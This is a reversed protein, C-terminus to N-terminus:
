EAKVIYTFAVNKMRTEAATRVVRSSDFYIKRVENNWVTGGDSPGGTGGNDFFAGSLYKGINSTNAVDAAFQGTIQQMADAQYSLVSRGSDLGRGLDLGRIVVGRLDPLSSGYVSALKPYSSPNFGQGQMIFFGSPATPKGWPIPMGAPLPTDTKFLYRADSEAKSWAGVDAATITIDSSLAKGNVRRTSPVRTNANDNAAKVANPTAATTNSTSAVSNELQVIGRQTLSAIPLDDMQLKLKWGSFAGSSVTASYTRGINTVMLMVRQNAAEHNTVIIEAWSFPVDTPYNTYGSTAPNYLRYFGPKKDNFYTALDANDPIYSSRVGLGYTDLLNQSRLPTMAKLDDTGAEAEWDKALTVFGKEDETAYPHNRSEEHAAIATAIWLKVDDPRAFNVWGRFVDGYVEAIWLDNGHSSAMIARSGPVGGSIVTYYVIDKIPGGTTGSLAANDFYFGGECRGLFKRLNVGNPIKVAKGGTGYQDLLNQAEDITVIEPHKVGGRDVVTLQNM